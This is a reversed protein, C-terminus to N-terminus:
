STMAIENTFDHFLAKHPISTDAFWLEDVGSSLGDPYAERVADLMKLHNMLAIDNSEFLLITTWSSGSYKELTM